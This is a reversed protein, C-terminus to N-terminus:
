AILLRNGEDDILLFFDDPPGEEILLFLGAPPASWSDMEPKIATDLTPIIKLQAM